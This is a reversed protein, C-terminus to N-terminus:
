EGKEKGLEAIAKMNTEVDRMVRGVGGSLLELASCVAEFAEDKKGVSWGHRATILLDKMCVQKEPSPEGNPLVIRNSM